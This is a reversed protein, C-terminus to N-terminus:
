RFCGGACMLSFFASLFTLSQAHGTQVARERALSTRTSTQGSDGEEDEDGGMDGMGGMGGM